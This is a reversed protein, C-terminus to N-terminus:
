LAKSLRKSDLGSSRSVKKDLLCGRFQDGLKKNGDTKLNHTQNESRYDLTIQHPDLMLYM